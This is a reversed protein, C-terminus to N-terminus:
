KDVQFKIYRNYDMTVDYAGFRAALNDLFEKKNYEKDQAKGFVNEFIPAYKANFNPLTNTDIVHNPNNPNQSMQKRLEAEIMKILKKDAMLKDFTQGEAHYTKMKDAERQASMDLPKRKFPGFPAKRLEDKWTM